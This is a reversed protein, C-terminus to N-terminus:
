YNISKMTTDSTKSIKHTKKRLVSNNIAIVLTDVKGDQSSNPFAALQDLFPENWPGKILKVRKAECVPSVDDVRAVKDKHPPTDELINMKTDRKVQQVLSKGSAKPEVYIKSQDTYGHLYPYSKTHKVLEPFEMYVSEQNRIIIEGNYDGWQLFSSEDNDMSESYASDISTHWVISNFEPKWDIIEFWEKKLKGGGDPAAAQDFQNAYGYTGLDIKSETLIDRSLRIPDLLGDVYKEKLEAPKVKDSLEAPLCIHKIKDSKKSLIYGTVDLEHLRQMITITPTNAKDIKRSSLTKTHENATHREADSAAQKPNLPDDNLILHGHKGTIAGGTSTTYRAGRCTNEYAVITNKDKRIEVEPFLRKYLDSQIIDRSKSSQEESVSASYSNSIIRLTPDNTWLWPHFMITVITSKSTGPPINICIDYPKPLREKLYPLLKQLEDCIYEIHWNWVPEEPIIVHWFLRVFDYFRKRSHNRQIEDIVEQTFM